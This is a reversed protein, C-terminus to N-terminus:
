SNVNRSDTITVFVEAATLEFSVGSAIQEIFPEIDVGDINLRGAGEAPNTDVVVEVTASEITPGSNRYVGIRWFNCPNNTFGVLKRVKPTVANVVWRKFKNMKRPDEDQLPWLRVKFPVPSISYTDGVKASSSFSETDVLTVGDGDTFGITGSEGAADGSTMYVKAGVMDGHFTGNTDIVNRNNGEATVTGNVTYSSDLGWMTGTGSMDYDPTVILGTTTIFYARVKGNNLVDPGSTCGVFNAGEMQSVSQTGHYIMVMEEASPNLFFSCNMRSDYGSEIDELNDAWDDFILRNIASVQGMSGDSGNLMVVGLPTVMFVTNGAAHAAGKGVLGRNRHLNTFQLPRVDSSKFIHVVINEHLAFLSDGAEIYRLPRGADNPSRRENYTSFYEGSVHEPSSYKTDVGSRTTLAQGMFTLGQYRGITGSQPPSSIIDTKPNYRTQFPLAEDVLTGITVQLSDWAGSTAWDDDKAITQELYFIAGRTASGVGLNITRFVDVTDFLASFDDYDEGSVVSAHAPFDIVAKCHEEPENTANGGGTLTAGSVTLDDTSGGAESKALTIANGDAGTAIAELTVSSDNATATVSASSDGNIADALTQCHGPITDPSAAPITVDSGADIYEYDRGNISIIDGAVMKGSDGGGSNFYIIGTAKTQKMLELTVTLPASLSSYIGRTSDYFRYAVQYTGGGNLEYSADVSAVPTEMVALEEDFNGPGMPVTQLAAGDWYITQPAKTDITVFLFGGDVDCDMALQNTIETGSGAGAWIEHAAWSSGDLTYVLDVQEKNNNDYKDYRIVFGRYTDSTGLKHFTVYKFFSPGDYSDITDIVSDLDIVEKMGFFKRLCGMFRGDVGSLEGFSGPQVQNEPVARNLFPGRMVYEIYEKLGTAM